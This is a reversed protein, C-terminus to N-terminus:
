NCHSIHSGKPLPSTAFFHFSELGQISPTVSVIAFAAKIEGSNLQRAAFNLLYRVEGNPFNTNMFAEIGWCFLFQPHDKESSYKELAFSAHQVVIESDVDIGEALQWSPSTRGAVVISIFCLLAAVSLLVPSSNASLAM